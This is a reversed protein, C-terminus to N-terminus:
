STGLREREADGATGSPKSSSSGSSTRRDSAAFFACDSMAALICRKSLLPTMSSMTEAPEPEDDRGRDLPAPPSAGNAAAGPDLVALRPVDVLTALRLAPDAILPGRPHDHRRARNAAAATAGTTVRRGSRPGGDRTRGSPSGGDSKRKGVGHLPSNHDSHHNRNCYHHGTRELLM